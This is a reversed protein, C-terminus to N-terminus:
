YKPPHIDRDWAGALGILILTLLSLIVIGEESEQISEYSFVIGGYWVYFVIYGLTGLVKLFGVFM